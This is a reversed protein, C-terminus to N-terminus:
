KSFIVRRIRPDNQLRALETSNSKFYSNGMMFMDDLLKSKVKTYICKVYCKDNIIKKFQCDRTYTLYQYPKHIYISISDLSKIYSLQVLSDIEIHKLKNKIFFDRVWGDNLELGFTHVLIRGINIKESGIKKILFNLLGIDNVTIENILKEKILKCSLSAIKELKIDTLIPTTLIIKKNINKKKFEYIEKIDPMKYLCFESGIYFIDDNFDNEELNTIYRAKEM